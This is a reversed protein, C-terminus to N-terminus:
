RKEEPMQRELEEIRDFIAAANNHLWAIGEAEGMDPVGDPLNGIPLHGRGPQRIYATNDLRIAEWKGPTMRALLERGRKIDIHESM